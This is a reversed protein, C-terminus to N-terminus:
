EIKEIDRICEAVIATKEEASSEFEFHYSKGTVEKIAIFASHAITFERDGVLKKLLPLAKRTPHDVLAQALAVRVVISKDQPVTELMKFSEETGIAALAKVAPIRHKANRSGLTNRVQRYSGQSVAAILEKSTPPPWSDVIVYGVIGLALFAVIIALAQKM